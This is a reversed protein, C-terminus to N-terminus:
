SSIHLENEVLTICSISHKTIREDVASSDLIISRARTISSLKLVEWSVYLERSLEAISVTGEILATESVSLAKRSATIPIKDSLSAHAASIAVRV